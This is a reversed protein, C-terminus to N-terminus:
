SWGFTTAPEVDDLGLEELRKISERMFAIAQDQEGGPAVSADSAKRELAAQPSPTDSRVPTPQDM